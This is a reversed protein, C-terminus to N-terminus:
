LLKKTSKTVFPPKLYTPEYAATDVWQGDTALATAPGALHAAQCKLEPLCHFGPSEGIIREVKETGSGCVLIEGRERLNAFSKPTLAESIREGVAQGATTYPRLYVEDRRSNITPLIVAAGIAQAKAQAAQGLALLTDVALLKLTPVAVCLGKATAAGVRLSTYSGPGDSLAIGDLDFISMGTALLTDQIFVTLHSAHMFPEEGIIEHVLQGDVVLGVSCIDTATELLLIKM